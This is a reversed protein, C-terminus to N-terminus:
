EVAVPSYLNILVVGALILAAAFLTRSQRM